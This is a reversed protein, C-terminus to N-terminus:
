VVRMVVFRNYDVIVKYFGKLKEDVLPDGTDVRLQKLERIKSETSVIIIDEKSLHKLFRPSFQLNGRGFIFGQGGIPTVIVKIDDYNDLLELLHKEWADKILLRRNLLVDVGLLTYELGLAKAIAKVTSGPGLVYVVDDVLNEVIFDAIARKNEEDDLSSYLTKGGQTMAQHFITRLYGYLRVVLEDRRFAEEDIDLVEREVIVAEGKLFSDLLSAAAIPSVAFVSSYMKVGSPVGLVPVAKDISDLIDRATGDGGVFVLIDVGEEVMLKAIRRTDEATTEVGIEGVVKKLKDGHRSQLVIEAGMKGPASVIQFNGSKVENLFILARRPSEPRAGRTIALKYANGDTGKLGVRGGMGAIPNVIFGITFQKM